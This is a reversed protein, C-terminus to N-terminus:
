RSGDCASLRATDVELEGWLTIIEHSTLRGGGRTSSELDEVTTLDYSSPDNTATDPASAITGLYRM